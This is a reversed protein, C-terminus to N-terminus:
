VKTNEAKKEKKSSKDKSVDEVEDQLKALYESSNRPQRAPLPAGASEASGKLAIKEAWEVCKKDFSGSFNIEKLTAYFYETGLTATGNEQMANTGAFVVPRKRSDLVPQGLNDELTEGVVRREVEITAMSPIDNTTVCKVYAGVLAPKLTGFEDELDNARAISEIYNAGTALSYQGNDRQSPLDAHINHANGEVMVNFEGAFKTSKSIRLVPMQVTTVIERKM